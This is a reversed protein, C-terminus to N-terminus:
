ARRLLRRLFALLGRQRGPQRPAGSTGSRPPEVAPLTDLLRHAAAEDPDITLARRALARAAVADSRALAVRALGVVAIANRPDADAVQAYLHEAADTNGDALAADAVLLREIM